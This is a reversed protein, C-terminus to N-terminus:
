ARAERRFPRPDFTLEPDLAQAAALAGPLAAVLLERVEAAELGGERCWHLTTGEVMGIWGELAARLPPGPDGEGTVARAIEKILQLKERDRLAQVEPGLLGSSVQRFAEPAAAALVLYADLTRELRVLPDVDDGPAALRSLGQVIEQMLDLFLGRKSGFYYYLLGKAVGAEGAIQDISM